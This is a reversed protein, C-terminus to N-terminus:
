KQLFFFFDGFVSLIKRDFWLSFIPFFIAAARSAGGGEQVRRVEEGARRDEEWIRLLSAM